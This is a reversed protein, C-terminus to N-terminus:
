AYSANRRIPKVPRHLVMCLLIIMPAVYGLLMTVFTISLLVLILFCCKPRGMRTRYLWMSLSVWFTMFFGTSLLGGKYLLSGLIFSHSGIEVGGGLTTPNPGSIEHGFIFNVPNDLVRDLTEVYAATRAETSKGRFESIFTATNTSTNLILDTVPSLSLIVFSMVAILTFAFRFGGFKTTAFVSSILLVVPFAVWVARTGSLGILFVSAGFLLLSWLRNKIDLALLSVAGVFLGFYEPHYFFSYFRAMGAIAKDNPRYLILYSANGIGRYYQTSKGSLLGLLTRPPNYFSDFFVFQVFFWTALMQVVSVSCAWAVVELRVRINNSQIYWVLFPLLLVSFAGEFLEIPERGADLPLVALPHADFFLLFEGAYAIGYYAFLAAVALSPRKLRLRGYRRWDYLIIGLTLFEPIYRVLGIVWWLPLLVIIACVSREAASLACWRIWIGSFLSEDEAQVSSIPKGLKSTMMGM